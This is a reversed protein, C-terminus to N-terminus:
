KKARIISGRRKEEKRGNSKYFSQYIGDKKGGLYNTKTTIPKFGSVGEETHEGDWNISSTCTYLIGGFCIFFAGSMFTCGFLQDRRAGKKAKSVYYIIFGVLVLAITGYVYWDKWM